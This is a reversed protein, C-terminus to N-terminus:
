FEGRSRIVLIIVQWRRRLRRAIITILVVYLGCICRQRSALIIWANGKLLDKDILMERLGVV